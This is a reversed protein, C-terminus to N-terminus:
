AMLIFISSKARRRRTSRSSLRPASRLQTFQWFSVGSYWAMRCERRVAATNRSCLPACGLITALVRLRVARWAATMWPRRSSMAARRLWPASRLRALSFPVAASMARRELLLAVIQRSSSVSLSFSCRKQSVMSFLIMSYSSIIAGVSGGSSTGLRNWRIFVPPASGANVTADTRRTSGLVPCVGSWTAAPSPFTLKHLCISRRLASMSACSWSPNVGSCLASILECTSVLM